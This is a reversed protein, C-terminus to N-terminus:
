SSLLADIKCSLVWSPVGTQETLFNPYNDDIAHLTIITPIATYSTTMWPTKCRLAVDIHGPARYIAGRHHDALVTGYWDMQPILLTTCVEIKKQKKVALPDDIKKIGNALAQQEQDVLKSHDLRTINGDTKEYTDALHGPKLRPLKFPVNSTATSKGAAKAQMRAAAENLLERVQEDSMDEDTDDEFLPQHAPLLEMTNNAPHSARPTSFEFDRVKETLCCPGGGRRFWAGGDLISEV